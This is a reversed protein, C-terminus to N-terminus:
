ASRKMASRKMVSREVVVGHGDVPGSQGDEGGDEGEDRRGAEDGRTPVPSRATEPAGIANGDRERGEVFPSEAAAAEAGEDGPEQHAPVHVGGVGDDRHGGQDVSDAAIAEEGDRIADEGERQREHDHRAQPFHATAWPNTVRASKIRPVVPERESATANAM